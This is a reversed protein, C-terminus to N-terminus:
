DYGEPIPDLEQSLVPIPDLEQCRGILLVQDWLNFFGRNV